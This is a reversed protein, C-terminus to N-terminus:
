SRFYVQLCIECLGHSIKEQPKEVLSPVWEWRDGDPLATRRCEACQRIIQDADLQPTEGLGRPKGLIEQAPAEYVLSNTVLLSEGDPLIQAHCHFRRHTEPSSCQFDHHFPTKPGVRRMARSYFDRLRPESISEPYSCGLGWRSAIQDGRNAAAFREWALNFYGIELDRTLGFLIDGTRDFAALDMGELAAQFHPSIRM